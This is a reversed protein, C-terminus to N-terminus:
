GKIVKAESIFQEAMEKYFAYAPTKAVITIAALVEATSLRLERKLAGFAEDLFSSGIARAGDLSIVVHIGQEINPRLFENFFRRGNDPGDEETRGMPFKSFDNPLDINVTKSNASAVIKMTIKGDM